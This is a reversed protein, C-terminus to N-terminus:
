GIYKNIFSIEFECQCSMVADWYTLNSYCLGESLYSIYCLGESLCSINLLYFSVLAPQYVTQGSSTRRASESPREKKDTGSIM